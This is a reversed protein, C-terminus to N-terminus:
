PPPSPLQALLYRELSMGCPDPSLGAKETDENILYFILYAAHSHCPPHFSSLAVGLALPPGLNWGPWVSCPQATGAM